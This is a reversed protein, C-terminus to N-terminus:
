SVGEAGGEVRRDGATYRNTPLERCAVGEWSPVRVRHRARTWVRAEGRLPTSPSLHAKGLRPLGGKTPLTHAKIAAEVSPLM